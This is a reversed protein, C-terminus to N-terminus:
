CGTTKRDSWPSHLWGSTYNTIGNGITFYAFTSYYRGDRGVCGIPNEAIQGQSMSYGRGVGVQSYGHGDAYNSREEYLTVAITSPSWACSSVMAGAIVRYNTAGKVGDQVPGITLWCGDWYTQSYMHSNSPYNPNTNPFSNFVDASATGVVAFMSAVALVAVLAMRRRAGKGFSRLRRGQPSAKTSSHQIPSM